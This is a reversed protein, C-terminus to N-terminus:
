LGFVHYQFRTRRATVTYYISVSMHLDLSFKCLDQSDGRIDAYVKYQWFRTM